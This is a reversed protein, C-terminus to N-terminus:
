TILRSNRNLERFFAIRDTEPLDLIFAVNRGLQNFSTGVVKAVTGDKEWVRDHIKKADFCEISIGSNACGAIIESKDTANWKQRNSDHDYYVKLERLSQPFIDLVRNVYDNYNAKFFYPDIAMGKGDTFNVM